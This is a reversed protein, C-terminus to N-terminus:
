SSQSYLNDIIPLFSHVYTDDPVGLDRFICYRIGYQIVWITSLLYLGGSYSSNRQQGTTNRQLM